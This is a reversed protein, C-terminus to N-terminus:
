SKSTKRKKILGRIQEKNMKAIQENSEVRKVMNMFEINSENASNFLMAIGTFSFIIMISMVAFYLNFNAITQINFQTNNILMLGLILMFWCAAAGIILEKYDHKFILAISAYLVLLIGGFAFLLYIPKLYSAVLFLPTLLVIVGVVISIMWLAMRKSHSKYEEEHMLKVSSVHATFFNSLSVFLAILVLITWFILFTFYNANAISQTLINFILGIVLVMSSTILSIGLTRRYAMGWYRKVHERLYDM